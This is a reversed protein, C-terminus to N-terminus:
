LEGTTQTWRTDSDMRETGAPTATDVAPPRRQCAVPRSGALAALWRAEKYIYIPCNRSRRVGIAAGPRTSDACLAATVPRRPVPRSDRPACHRRPSEHVGGGRAAGCRGAARFGAGGGLSSFGRPWPWPSTAFVGCRRASQKGHAGLLLPDGVFLHAFLAGFRWTQGLSVLTAATPSWILPSFALVPLACRMGSRASVNLTLPSPTATQVIVPSHLTSDSTCLLLYLLLRALSHPSPLHSLAASTQVLPRPPAERLRRGGIM